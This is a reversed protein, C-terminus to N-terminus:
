RTNNRIADVLDRMWKEYDDSVGTQPDFSLGESSAM